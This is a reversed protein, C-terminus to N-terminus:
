GGEVWCVGGVAGGDRMSGPMWFAGSVTGLVLDMTGGGTTSGLIAISGSRGPPGACGLGGDGVSLGGIGGRHCWVTWEGSHSTQVCSPGNM